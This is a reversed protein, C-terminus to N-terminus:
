RSKKTDSSRGYKELLSINIKDINIVPSPRRNKLGNSLAKSVDFYNKCAQCLSLHLLFRFHDIITTPKQRLDITWTVDQCKLAFTQRQKSANRYYVDHWINRIKQGIKM